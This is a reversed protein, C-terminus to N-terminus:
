PAGGGRRRLLQDHYHRRYSRMEVDLAAIAAGGGRAVRAQVALLDAPPTPPTTVAVRPASLRLTSSLVLAFAAAAALGGM